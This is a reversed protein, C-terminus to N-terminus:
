FECLLAACKVRLFNNTVEIKDNKEREEDDLDDDEDGWGGEDIPAEVTPDIELNTMNTAKAM